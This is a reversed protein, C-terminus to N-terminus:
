NRQRAWVLVNDLYHGTAPDFPGGCTVLALKPTGTTVWLAPPLQTKLATQPAADVTWTSLHEASDSIEIIDGVKLNRLDVAGGARGCCLRRSRRDRGSRTPRTRPTRTFPVTATRCAGTGGDVTQIDPPITLSATEPAGM